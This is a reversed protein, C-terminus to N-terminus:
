NTFIWWNSVASLLFVLSPGNIEMRTEELKKLYCVEILLFDVTSGKWNLVKKIYDGQVTKAEYDRKM